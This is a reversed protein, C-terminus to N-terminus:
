LSDLIFPRGYGQVQVEPQLNALNGPVGSLLCQTIIYAEYVDTSNLVFFSKEGYDPM